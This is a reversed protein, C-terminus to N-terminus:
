PAECVEVNQEIHSIIGCAQRKVQDFALDHLVKIGNEDLSALATSTSNFALSAIASTHVTITRLPSRTVTDWLIVKGQQDGSALRRGNPSLAIRYIRSWHGSLRALAEKSNLDWLILTGNDDGSALLASTANRDSAIERVM